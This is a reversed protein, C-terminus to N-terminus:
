LKEKTLEEVDQPHYKNEGDKGDLRVHILYVFRQHDLTYCRTKTITGPSLLALVRRGKRM